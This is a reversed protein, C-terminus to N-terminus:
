LVVHSRDSKGEGLVEHVQSVTIFARPDIEKIYNKLKIFEMRGLVTNIIFTEKRTYAGIGTINTCGRELTNLIFENIESYKESIITVSMCVKFGEIFRDIALGNLIVCVLAYLGRDVGFTIAASITVLFDVILLSKGINIHFYKNLIKAIIDTGGTSANVNFVIAMGIASIITGFLTAMILDTTIAQPKFYKEILAMILSLGFSTYITKAGFNGGLFIFAIVFLILNMILVLIGTSLIPIYNNIVIALGTVGGAALNNPVFFYEVAFAVLLIGVTIEGYEKVSKKVM